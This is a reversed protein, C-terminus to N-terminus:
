RARWGKGGVSASGAKRNRARRVIWPVLNQSAKNLRVVGPTKAIDGLVVETDALEAALGPFTKVRQCPSEDNRGFPRWM